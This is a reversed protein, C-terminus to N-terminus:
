TRGYIMGGFNTGKGIPCLWFATLSIGSWSARWRGSALIPRTVGDFCGVEGINLFPTQINVGKGGGDPSDTIACMRLPM